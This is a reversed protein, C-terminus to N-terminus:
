TFMVAHIDLRHNNITTTEGRCLHEVNFMEGCEVLETDEQTNRVRGPTPPTLDVLISPSSVVNTFGLKNQLKLNINFEQGHELKLDTITYMTAHGKGLTEYHVFDQSVQLPLTAFTNVFSDEDSPGLISSHLICRKQNDSYDYSLCNTHGECM